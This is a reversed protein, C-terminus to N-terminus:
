LWVVPSYTRPTSASSCPTLASWIVQTVVSPECTASYSSGAFTSRESSLRTPRRSRPSISAAIRPGPRSGVGHHTGSMGSAAVAPSAHPVRWPSMGILWMTQTPGAIASDM